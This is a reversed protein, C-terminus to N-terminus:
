PVVTDTAWRAPLIAGIIRLTAGLPYVCVLQMSRRPKPQRPRRGVFRSAADPPIRPHSQGKTQHGSRTRIQRTLASYKVRHKGHGINQEGQAENAQVPDQVSTSLAQASLARRAPINIGVNKTSHIGFGYGRPPLM